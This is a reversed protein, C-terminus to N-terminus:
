FYFLVWFQDRPSEANLLRLLHHYIMIHLMSNEKTCIAKSGSYPLVESVM